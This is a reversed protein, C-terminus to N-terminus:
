RGILKKRSALDIDQYKALEGVFANYKYNKLYGYYPIYLVRHFSFVAPCDNCVIRELQRYQELRQPTDPLDVTKRYLENFERSNYNFDNPGPAGNPGYFIEMFTSADPYDALWGISFMQVSRTKIKEQFTPWDSFDLNVNVGIKAMSRKFYEGWQRFYTDTGQMSCTVTIKGGAIKEAEAVLRRAREPDYMGWPNRLAPDFERFTPPFIGRAPIARGVNIMANFEERNFGVSMARRLPLNKGVLPDDMNFGFWYTSPDDVVILDMGRNRMEPTLDRGPGIAQSYFDNPIRDGISDVKGEMFSLWYPRDEEIVYYMIADVLPLPKGADSLLGRERDGMEGESPYVEKRFGPNRVLILTTVTRWSKLRFPGTGVTVTPIRDGYYEVAERAMPATPLHALLYRIQPWPKKLRIQLTFDDPAALGPVARSYDVERASKFTATYARFENLGVIKGDFIWWNKSRYKVNAIRKWAYIFDGAVLRRGKGGPFCPDDCFYVDRRLRITCALGDASVQPLGDALCPIVEYPRKLYHYQYLCEYCQGAVQSSITDGIDGPDLGRVKMRLPGYRVKAGPTDIPERETKGCGPFPCASLLLALLIVKKPM